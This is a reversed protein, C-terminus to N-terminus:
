ILKAILFYEEFLEFSSIIKFNENVFCEFWRRKIKFSNKGSISKVPNSVVIIDEKNLINKLNLLFAKSSNPEVSEMADITQLLLILRPSNMNEVSDRIMDLDLVSRFLM